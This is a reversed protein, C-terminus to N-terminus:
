NKETFFDLIRKFILDSNQNTTGMKGSLDTM